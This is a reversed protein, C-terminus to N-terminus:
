AEEAGFLSEPSPRPARSDLRATSSGPSVKMAKAEVYSNEAAVAIALARLGDEGGVRLPRDNLICEVFDNIESVYADAFTTLFYDAVPQASGQATLVTVPTQNLCGVLISGKSGIVETRVDYGYVAQAYSDINGIAGQSFKLNVVSAVVDGFHAVEPRIASTAYTHVEAVEDRMLWRALDFDHITNTYFLMGNANSHYASLPPGDKDRGVSKFIVPVGIEGAEIRKMAACYASDYRRMFGVQFRVGAESVANLMEQGDTLSLALPKECLIDKGAAAATKVASTHFRDPTAIVVADLGRCELMAELSSYSNEIELENAIELAREGAVDAVAVLQARPVLRRLNEAHRRGMEGVGLVGVGLKRM